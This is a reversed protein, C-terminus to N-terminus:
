PASAAASALSAQPKITMAFAMQRADAQTLIKVDRFLGTQELAKVHEAGAIESSASAILIRLKGDNMEWEKLVAGGGEPLARAIAVLYVLPAPYPQLDSLAKVQEAMATAESRARLVGKAQENKEDLESQAASRARSLRFQDVALALAPVGLAVVLAAYSLLEAPALRGSRDGVDSLPRWARDRLPLEVSALAADMADPALGCDRQFALVTAADPTQPWWRSALLEGGVWQQGEVGDLCTVLRVGDVQWPEGRLVTEPTARPVKRGGATSWASALAAADWCWVQAVGDPHWAM